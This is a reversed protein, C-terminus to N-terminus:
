EQPEPVRIGEGKDTIINHEGEESKLCAGTVGTSDSDTYIRVRSVAMRGQWDVRIQFAKDINGKKNSEIGCVGDSDDFSGGAIEQTRLVRTQPNFEQIISDDEIEEQIISNISGEEAQLVTDLCKIWQGKIGGFYVQVSVEGYIERVDIEAYKFQRFDNDVLFARTELSCPIPQNNDRRDDVFAEWVHCQSEKYQHYEKSLCFIRTKGDQQFSAWEVPRNGTWVGAWCPPSGSNLLSTVSADMVWTQRNWIVDAHPVSLMLYNSFAGICSYALLPSLNGKSRSMEEDRYVIKGTRYTNMASDLNTLGDGSLWWTFGCYNILSKGAVCGISPVIVRQFDPTNQWQTRVTINAQLASVTDATFVLLAETQASKIMGTIPGSFWFGDREALYDGETFLLPDLIDSAYVRQGDAVWLRSGIWEMWLGIPTQDVGPSPDLHGNSSGDWYAARTRGDQMILVNYPDIIQLGQDPDYQTGKIAQKFTVQPANPDFRINPLKIFVAFPRKSYYVSGGVAFVMYVSRDIQEFFTIGQPQGDPFPNGEDDTMESLNLGPRTQVINGRNTVNEGWAYQSAPISTAVLASNVGGTWDGIDGAQRTQLNNKAM